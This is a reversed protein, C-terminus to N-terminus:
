QFRHVWCGSGTSQLSLPWRLSSCGREDCGSFARLCCHLGWAYYTILAYYPLLLVGFYYFLLTIFFVWVIENFLVSFLSFIPFNKNIIVFMYVCVCVCM